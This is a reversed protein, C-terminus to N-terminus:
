NLQRCSILNANDLILPFKNWLRKSFVLGRGRTRPRGRRRRGPIKEEIWKKDIRFWIEDIIAWIIASYNFWYSKCAFPHNCHTLMALFAKGSSLAFQNTIIKVHAGGDQIGNRLRGPIKEEIFNDGIRLWIEDIIAWIMASYNFWYSKCAFPHNCHTLM